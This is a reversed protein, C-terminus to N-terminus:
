PKATQALAQELARTDLVEDIAFDRKLLGNAALMGKMDALLNRLGSVGNREVLTAHDHIRVNALMARIDTETQPEDFTRQNLIRVYEPWNAADHMWDVAEIWGALIRALDDRPIAAIVDSRGGIGEPMIGPFDATSALVEGGERQVDLAAPDYSLVCSLKGSIFHGTLDKPEYQTLAVEDLRLGRSSLARALFMLVAPDKHYIGVPDGAKLRTGKRALLKDGGHSWDFEGLITIDLGAQHMGILNGIMDVALDVRRHEIAATHEEEGHQNIVEVEVGRRKWIGTVEAVHVPSWAIWPCMGIRYPRTQGDASAAFACCAVLAVVARGLVSANM